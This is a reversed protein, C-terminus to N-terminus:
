RQLFDCPFQVQLKMMLEFYMGTQQKSSIKWSSDEQCIFYQLKGVERYGTKCVFEAKEGVFFSFNGTLNSANKLIAGVPLYKQLLKHTSCTSNISSVLRKTRSPFSRKSNTLGQSLLATGHIFFLAYWLRFTTMSGRNLVWVKSSADRVARWVDTIVCPWSVHACSM